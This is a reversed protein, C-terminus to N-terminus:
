EKGAESETRNLQWFEKALPQELDELAKAARANGLDSAKIMLRKAEEFSAETEGLGELYCLSAAEYVVPALEFEATNSSAEYNDISEELWRCGESMEEIGFLLGGLLGQAEYFDAEAANTLWQRSVEQDVTWLLKGLRYQAEIHGQEAARTYWDTAADADKLEEDAEDYYFAVEFQADADGSEAKALLESDLESIAAASFGIGMVLILVNFM